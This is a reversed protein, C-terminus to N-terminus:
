VGGSALMSMPVPSEWDDVEDPVNAPEYVPRYLPEGSSTGLSEHPPEYPTDTITSPDHVATEAYPDALDEVETSVQIGSEIVSEPGIEPTTTAAAEATPDFLTDQGDQAGPEDAPKDVIETKTAPKAKTLKGGCGLSVRCSSPPSGNRGVLMWGHIASLVPEGGSDASADANPDTGAAPEETEVYCEPCVLLNVNTTTPPTFRLYTLFPAYRNLLWHQDETLVLQRYLTGTRDAAAAEEPDLYPGSSTLREVLTEWTPTKTHRLVALALSAAHILEPADEPHASTLRFRKPQKPTRTRRTAM